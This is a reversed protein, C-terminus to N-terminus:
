VLAVSQNEHNKFRLIDLWKKADDINMFIQTPVNSRRNKISHRALIFQGLDNVVLARGLIYSSQEDKACMERAERTPQSYAGYNVISYLNTQRALEAAVNRFEKLHEVGIEVGGDIDVFVVNKDILGIKGISCQTMKM